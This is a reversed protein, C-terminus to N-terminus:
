YKRGREWSLPAFFGTTEFALDDNQRVWWLGTSQLAYLNGNTIQMQVASGNSNGNLQMYWDLGDLAQAGFTWIGESTTLLGTQGSYIM